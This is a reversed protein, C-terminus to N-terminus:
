EQTESPPTQPTIPNAEISEGVLTPAIEETDKDNTTMMIDITQQRIANRTYRLTEIGRNM